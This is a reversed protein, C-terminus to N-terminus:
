IGSLFSLPGETPLFHFADNLLLLVPIGLLLFSYWNMMFPNTNAAAAPDVWKVEKIEGTNMDRYVGKPSTEEEEMVTKAIDETETPLTPATKAIDETETPLPPATKAIDETETALPPATKKEEDAMFRQTSQRSVVKTTAGWPHAPTTFAATSSLLVLFAFLRMM